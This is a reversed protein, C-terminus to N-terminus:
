LRMWDVFYVEAVNPLSETVKSRPYDVVEVFELCDMIALDARTMVHAFYREGNVCFGKPKYLLLEILTCPKHNVFIELGDVKGNGSYASGGIWVTIEIGRLTFRINKLEVGNFKIKTIM